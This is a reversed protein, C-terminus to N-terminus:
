SAYSLTNIKESIILLSGPLQRMSDLVFYCDQFKDKIVPKAIIAEIDFPVRNAKQSLCFDTEGISYLIGAGYIKLEANSSV